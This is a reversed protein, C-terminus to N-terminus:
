KGRKQTDFTFALLGRDFNNVLVLFVTCVAPNPKIRTEIIELVEIKLMALLIISETWCSTICFVILTGVFCFPARLGGM